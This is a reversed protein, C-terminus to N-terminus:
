IYQIYTHTDTTLRVVFLLGYRDQLEVAARLVACAPGGPMGCGPAIAPVGATSFTLGSMDGSLEIQHELSDLRPTCMRLCCERSFEQPPILLYIIIIFVRQYKTPVSVTSSSSLPCSCIRCECSGSPLSFIKGHCGRPSNSCLHELCLQIGVSADQVGTPDVSVGACIDVQPAEAPNLAATPRQIAVLTPQQQLQPTPPPPAMKVEGCLSLSSGVISKRGPIHTVLRLAQTAAGFGAAAAPCSCNGTFPNPQTCTTNVAPVSDLSHFAGGLGPRRALPLCVTVVTRMTATQGDTPVTAAAFVAAKVSGTFGAPCTCAGTLLNPSRCGAGAAFAARLAAPHDDVDMQYAGGFASTAARFGVPLCLGVAGPRLPPHSLGPTGFACDSIAAIPQILPATAPCSCSGTIANTGSDDCVPCNGLPPAALPSTNEMFAGGWGDARSYGSLGALLLMAVVVM